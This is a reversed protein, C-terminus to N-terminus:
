QCARRWEKSLMNSYRIRIARSASMGEKVRENWKCSTINRSFQCMQDNEQHSVLLALDLPVICQISNDWHQLISLIFKCYM